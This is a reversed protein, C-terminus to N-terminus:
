HSVLQLPFSFPLIVFFLGLSQCFSAFVSVFHIPYLRNPQLQIQTVKVTLRNSSKTHFEFSFRTFVNRLYKPIYSLQIIANHM